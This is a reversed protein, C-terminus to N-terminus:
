VLHLVVCPPETNCLTYCLAGAFIGAQKWKAVAPHRALGLLQIVNHDFRVDISLNAFTVQITLLKHTSKAYGTDVTEVEDAYLIAAVRLDRVEDPRAPRMLHEHFRMVSGRDMDSLTETETKKWKDWKKWEESKEIMADRM